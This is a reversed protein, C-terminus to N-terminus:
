WSLTNSKTLHKKEQMKQPIIHTEGGKNICNTCQNKPMVGVKCEQSLDLKTM